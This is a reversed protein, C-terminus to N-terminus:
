EKGSELSSLDEPSSESDAEVRKLSSDKEKKGSAKSVTAKEPRKAPDFPCRSVLYDSKGCRFCDGRERRCDIEKTSVWKARQKKTARKSSDPKPHKVAATRTPTPEWEMSEQQQNIPTNTPKFSKKYREAEGLRDNM